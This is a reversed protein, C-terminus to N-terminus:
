LWEQLEYPAEAKSHSKVYLAGLLSLVIKTETVFKHIVVNDYTSLFTGYGNQSWDCFIIILRM